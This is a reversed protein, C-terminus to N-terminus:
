ELEKLFYYANEINNGDTNEVFKNFKNRYYQNQSNNFNSVIIDTLKEDIEYVIDGFVNSKQIINEAGYEEEAVAKDGWFFIINSGGAFAYFCVSSYDTILVKTRVLIDKIDEDSVYEKILKYIDPFQTELINKAKPHLVLNVNKLKRNKNIINLFQLYRDIYSNNKIDGVLDWPRWTLMFTIDTKVTTDNVFLDINPTGTNILEDDNYATYYKFYDREMKSNIFIYDPTIPVKKNYYGREFVNTALSVGHQLFVKKDNFRIVKKLQTSNDYLTRLMHTPLDSSIIKNAKFITYFGMISNHKVLNKKYTEKLSNYRPHNENLLFRANKDGQSIAYKFVEFASEDAGSSFKEFYLDYKNKPSFLSLVKGIMEKLIILRSLVDSVVIVYQGTISKRTFFEINNNLKVRRSSWIYHNKDYIHDGREKLPYYFNLKEENKAKIYIPNNIESSDLYIKEIDSNSFSAFGIHSLLSLFNTKEGYKKRLKRSFIYRFPSSLKKNYGISLKTSIMNAYRFRLVGIIYIKKFGNIMIFRQGPASDSKEIISELSLKPHEKVLIYCLRNLFDTYVVIYFDNDRPNKLKQLVTIEGFTDKDHVIHINNNKYIYFKHYQLRKKSNIVKHNNFTHYNGLLIVNNDVKKIYEM